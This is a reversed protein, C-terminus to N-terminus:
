RDGGTLQRLIKQAAQQGASKKSVGEGSSVWDRGVRV